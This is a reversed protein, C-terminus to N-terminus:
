VKLNAFALQEENDFRNIYPADLIHTYASSTLVTYFLGIVVTMKTFCFIPLLYSIFRFVYKISINIYDNKLTLKSLIIVGVLGAGIGSFLKVYSAVTSSLSLETTLIIIFIGVLSYYAIDCFFSFGLYFISIKDRKIKKLLRILIDNRYSIDNDKLYKRM